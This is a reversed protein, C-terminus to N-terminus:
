LPRHGSKGGCIRRRGWSGSFDFDSDISASIEAPSITNLMRVEFPCIPFGEGSDEGQDVFGAGEHEEGHAEYVEDDDEEDDDDYRERNGRDEGDSLPGSEDSLPEEEESIGESAQLSIIVCVETFHVSFSGFPLGFIREAIM